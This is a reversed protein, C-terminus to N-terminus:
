INVSLFVLNVVNVDLKFANPWVMFYLNIGNIFIMFM